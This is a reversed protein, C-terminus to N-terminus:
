RAKQHAQLEKEKDVLKQTHKQVFMETFTTPEDAYVACSGALTLVLAALLFKKM